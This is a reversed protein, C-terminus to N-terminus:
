AGNYHPERIANWIVAQFECPHLGVQEAGAIYAESIDAYQRPTPTSAGENVDDYYARMAWVDVTIHDSDAHALNHAFATVKPGRLHSLDGTTAILWAKTRNAKTGAVVPESLGMRAATLMKLAGRKNQKLDIRPSLAAFVYSSVLLDDGTDSLWARLDRYWTIGRQRQDPTARGYWKRLSRKM